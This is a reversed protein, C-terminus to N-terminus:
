SKAENGNAEGTHLQIEVNAQAEEYLWTVDKKEEKKGAMFQQYVHWVSFVADNRVNSSRSFGKIGNPNQPTPPFKLRIIATYSTVTQGVPSDRSYVNLDAGDLKLLAEIEDERMYRRGNETTPITTDVFHLAYPKKLLVEQGWVEIREAYM